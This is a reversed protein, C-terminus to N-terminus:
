HGMGGQHELCEHGEQGYGGVEVKTKRQPAEGGDENRCSSLRINETEDRRKVHGPWVM